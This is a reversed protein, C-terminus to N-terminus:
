KVHKLDFSCAIAAFTTPTVDIVAVVVVVAVAFAGIIPSATVAAVNVASTDAFDLVDMVVLSSILVNDFVDLVLSLLQLVSLLLPM